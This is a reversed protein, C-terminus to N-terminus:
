YIWEITPKGEYGREWVFWAFAIMGGNKHTGDDKGFSVRKSFQYVTRLPFLTDQFMNYRKAGELFSTKLFMAIKYKALEKSKIVFELAQNFPPNTVINDKVTSTKLFDLVDGYGYDNVDSSFVNYKSDKLVKSIAGDGCACEWIDGTFGEKNLLGYVAHAPTRYFDSDSRGLRSNDGVIKRAMDTSNM